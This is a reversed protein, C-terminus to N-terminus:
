LDVPESFAIIQTFKAKLFRATITSTIESNFKHLSKPDM